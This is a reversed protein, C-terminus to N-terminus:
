DASVARSATTTDKEAQKLLLIYNNEMPFPLLIM